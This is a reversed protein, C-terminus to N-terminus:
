IKVIFYYVTVAYYLLYYLIRHTDIIIAFGLIHTDIQGHDGHFCYGNKYKM